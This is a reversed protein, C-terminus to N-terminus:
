PTVRYIVGSQDGAYLSGRATGLAIVGAPLDAPIFKFDPRPQELSTGHAAPDLLHKEKRDDRARL